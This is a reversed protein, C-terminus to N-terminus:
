LGPVIEKLERPPTNAIICSVTHTKSDYIVAQANLGFEQWITEGGELKKVADPTLSYSNGQRLSEIPAAVFLIATTDGRLYAWQAVSGKGVKVVNGGTLAARVTRFPIPYSVGEAQFLSALETQDDTPHAIGVKKELLGQFQEASVNIFNASVPPQATKATDNVATSGSVSIVPEHTNRVLLWAGVIVALSAAVVGARSLLNVAFRDIIGGSQTTHAFASSASPRESGERDLDDSISSRLADSAGVRPLRERVMMKTTLEQEFRERCEPCYRIHEEIRARNEVPDIRNDVYATIQEHLDQHTV